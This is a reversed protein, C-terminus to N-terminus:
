RGFGRSCYKVYALVVISTLWAAINQCLLYKWALDISTIAEALPQLSRRFLSASSGVLNILLTNIQGFQTVLGKFLSSGLYLNIALNHLASPCFLILMILLSIYFLSAAIFASKFDKRSFPALAGGSLPRSSSRMNASSTRSSPLDRMLYALDQRK